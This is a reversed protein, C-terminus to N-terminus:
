NCLKSCPIGDDNGDLRSLGCQNLYYKAERCTAMQKCFKKGACTLVAPEVPKETKIKRKGKRWDSPNIPNPESWLGLLESRAKREAEAYLIRDEKTQESQYKKYHWAYGAKIMELNIDEGNLKVVGVLRGYRDRKNGEICVTKQSVKKALFKGAAKGFAQGREPSDIGALRTTVKSNGAALVHVTDGDVVKIVKGELCESFAATSLCSLALILTTFIKM